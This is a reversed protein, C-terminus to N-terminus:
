EHWGRLFISQEVADDTVAHIDRRNVRRGHATYVRGEPLRWGFKVAHSDNAFDDPVFHFPKGSVLNNADIFQNVCDPPATIKLYLDEAESVWYRMRGDTCTPFTLDYDAFVENPTWGLSSGPYARDDFGTKDRLFYAGLLGITALVVVVVAVGIIGRRLRKNV